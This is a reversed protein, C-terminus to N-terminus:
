RVASKTARTLKYLHAALQDALLTAKSDKKIRCLDLITQCERLSGFAMNFFRARNAATPM